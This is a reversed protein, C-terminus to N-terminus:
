KSVENIEKGIDIATPVVNEGMNGVSGAWSPQNINFEKLTGTYVNGIQGSATSGSAIVGETVGSFLAASAAGEGMVTLTEKLSQQEGKIVKTVVDKAGADVAGSVTNIATTKIATQAIAKTGSITGQKAAVSAAQTVGKTAIGSSGSTVAGIVTSAVIIKVSTEDSFTNSVAEKFSQGEM